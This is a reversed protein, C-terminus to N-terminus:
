KFISFTNERIRCPSFYECLGAWYKRIMKESISHRYSKQLGTFYKAICINTSDSMLIATNGFWAVRCPM